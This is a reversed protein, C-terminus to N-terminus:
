NDRLSYLNEETKYKGKVREIRNNNALKTLCNSVNSKPVLTKPHEKQLLESVTNVSFGKSNDGLAKFVIKNIEETVNFGYHGWKVKNVPKNDGRNATHSINDLQKDRTAVKNCLGSLYRILDEKEKVKDNILKQQEKLKGLEKSQDEYELTLTNIM